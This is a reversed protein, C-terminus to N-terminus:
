FQLISCYSSLKLKRTEVKTVEKDQNVDHNSKKGQVRRQPELSRNAKTKTDRRKKAEVIDEYSM